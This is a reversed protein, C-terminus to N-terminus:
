MDELDHGEIESQCEVEQSASTVQIQSLRKTLLADIEQLLLEQGPPLQGKLKKRAVEELSELAWEIFPSRRPPIEQKAQLAKYVKRVQTLCPYETKRWQITTAIVDLPKKRKKTETPEKM